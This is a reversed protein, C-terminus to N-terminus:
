IRGANDYNTFKSFMVMVEVTYEALMVVIVNGSSNLKSLLVM